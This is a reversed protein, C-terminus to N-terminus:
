YETLRTSLIGVSGIISCFRLPVSKSEVHDSLLALAADMETKIGSHIIGDALLAGAKIYEETAYSYKDIQSLGNEPDWLLSLGLSAAASLM